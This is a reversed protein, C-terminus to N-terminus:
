EKPCPVIPNSAAPCASDMKFILKPQFHSGAGEEGLTRRKSDKDRPKDAAGRRSQQSKQKNLGLGGTSLGVM